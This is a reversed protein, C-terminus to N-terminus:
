GPQALAFGREWLAYLKNRAEGLIVAGPHAASMRLITRRAHRLVLGPVNLLHFRLAKPRMPHMRAPLAAAKLFLFMNHCMINFRWWAANSGFRAAPLKGGALENKVDGHGHEVTGQKARHWVLLDSPSCEHRNAVVCFHKWQQTVPTLLDLQRSRVRIATYRFPRTDKKFNRKWNPVFDPVEACERIEGADETTQPSSAVSGATRGSRALSATSSDLPRYPAWAEEPIAMVMKLLDESMKASVAFTWGQEDLWTLMDENYFASDARFRFKQIGPPLGAVAKKVFALLGTNSGVNGDRFEDAVWAMQEAWIGMMPQYGRGSDYHYLATKKHSEVLTADADLTLVTCKQVKQIQFVSETVMEALVRLGPGEARIMAQGQKSMEASATRKLFDGKEGQDFRYLLDKVRSPSSIEFGLLQPLGADARLIDLDDISDGGAAILLLVSEVHRRVVKWSKYYGLAKRLRRYWSKPWLMRITELLVPLGGYATVDLRKETTEIKFPLFPRPLKM